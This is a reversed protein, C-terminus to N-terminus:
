FDPQDNTSTEKTTPRPIFGQFRAGCRHAPVVTKGHHDPPRPGYLYAGTRDSLEYSTGRPKLTFTPRGVIFCAHEQPPSLPTPDATVMGACIDADMGHLTLEQCTTCRGWRAARFGGTKNELQAKLWDDMAPKKGAQAPLNFLTQQKM